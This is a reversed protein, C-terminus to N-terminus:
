LPVLRSGNLRFLKALVVVLTHLALVDERRVDSLTRYQVPWSGNDRRPPFARVIAGHEDGHINHTDGLIRLQLCCTRFLEHVLLDLEPDFPTDVATLCAYLWPGYGASRSVGESEDGVYDTPMLVRLFSLVSIVDESLEGGTLRPLRDLLSPPPLDKKGVAEECADTSSTEMGSCEELTDREQSSGDGSGAEGSDEECVKDAGGEEEQAGGDYFSYAAPQKGLKFLKLVRGVVATFLATTAATHQWVFLSLNPQFGQEPGYFSLFNNWHRTFPSTPIHEAPRTSLIFRLARVAGKKRKFSERSTIQALGNRVELWDDNTMSAVVDDLNANSQLKKSKMVDEVGARLSVFRERANKMRKVSVETFRYSPAQAAELTANRLTRGPFWKEMLSIKLPQPPSSSSAATDPLAVAATPESSRCPDLASARRGVNSNDEEDDEDECTRRRKKMPLRQNPQRALPKELSVDRLASTQSPIVFDKRFHKRNLQSVRRLYADADDEMM